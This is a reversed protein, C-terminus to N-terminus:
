VTDPTAPVQSPMSRAAPPLPDPRPPQPKGTLTTIMRSVNVTYVTVNAVQAEILAERLRTESAIDRTEAISLIVRRRSSPRSRLMRVAQQVADIQRSSSSGPKLKKFAESVKAAESTFGTLVQLRHDFAIVAAEGQDGIVISELLSGIKQIQPLVAEMSANAQVCIVLSLPHYTAEVRIDQEKGNDLLRFQRPQLGNVTNGDRDHVSVPVEIEIVGGTFKPLEAPPQKNQAALSVGILGFLLLRSKGM